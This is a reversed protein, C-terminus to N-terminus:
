EPRGFKQNYEPLIAEMAEYYHNMEDKTGISVRVWTELENAILPRIIVGLDLLKEFMWTSAELSGTKFPIFNTVTDIPKFNHKTLFEM